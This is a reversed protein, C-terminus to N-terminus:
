SSSAGSQSSLNVHGLSVTSSAPHDDTMTFDITKTNSLSMSLEIALMLGDSIGTEAEYSNHATASTGHVMGVSVIGEEDGFSAEVKISQCANTCGDNATISTILAGDGASGGNGEWATTASTSAEIAGTTHNKYIYYTTASLVGVSGTASTMVASPAVEAIGFYYPDVDISLENEDRVCNSDGNVEPKISLKWYRDTDLTVDTDIVGGTDNRTCDWQATDVTGAGTAGFDGDSSHRTVEGLVDNKGYTAQGAYVDEVIVNPHNRSQAVLHDNLFDLTTSEQSGDGQYKIKATEGANDFNLKIKTTM